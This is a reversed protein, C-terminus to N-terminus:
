KLKNSLFELDKEDIIEFWIGNIIRSSTKLTYTEIDLDEYNRIKWILSIMQLWDLNSDLNEKGTELLEPIKILHKPNLFKKAISIVVEQQRKIRGFDGEKDHRFRVYSLAKKGDLVQEGRQIIINHPYDSNPFDKKAIVTVGGLLDITKIFGKFNIHVYHPIEINFLDELVKVQLSPGGYAHAANVKNVSFNPIEVRSDRPVSIIIVKNTKPEYKILMLVDSRSKENNREDTGLLAFFLPTNENNNSKAKYHNEKEPLKLYDSSDKITDLIKTSSELETLIDGPLIHNNCLYLLLLSTIAIILFVFSLIIYKKL